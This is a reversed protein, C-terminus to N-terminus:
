FATPPTSKSECACMHGCPQFLVAAKKDSCVVCEEIQLCVCLFVIRKHPRRRRSGPISCSATSSRIGKNQVPGAGQLHSVKQRSSLLTLLHRHTWVAWVSHRAEHRLVGHVGGSVGHQQEAVPEPHGSPWQFVLLYVTCSVKSLGSGLNQRFVIFYSVSDVYILENM